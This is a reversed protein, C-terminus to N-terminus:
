DLLYDYYNTKMTINWFEIAIKRVSGLLTQNPYSFLLWYITCLHAM